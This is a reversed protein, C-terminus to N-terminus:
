QQPPQSQQANAPGANAPQGQPAAPTPPPQLMPILDNLGLEMALTMAQQPNIFKVHYIAHAFLEKQRNQDWTDFEPSKMQDTHEVYHIMHDDFPLPPNVHVGKQINLNELRAKEQDRRKEEQFEGIGNADLMGLVRRKAETPNQEDQLIGSNWLEIVQQTRIAPSNSLASGTYVIIEANEDINDQSFEVVDPIHARGAINILRPITCGQAMIKRAKRYLEEFALEHARIDPGQISDSAEQLQHVQFGSTTGGADGTSSASISSIEDIEMQLLKFMNWVDQAIPPPTIIKPEMVGPPTIIRIVEGAEDNWANAPWKSFVSTIVKPHTQKNLHNVLKSRLDNYERQPGILQEVISTPWFQGALEIDSFEVVPYPNRMSQFGYPLMEQYKLVVSGATVIYRGNPYQNNPRQFLEKVIVFNLDKDSKDALASVLGVNTKASLTAIQKQYQFLDNSAADGKLDDINPVTKYRLKVEELPQARVRMIESQDGIQQMGLDPVLLEYPSGLSFVLDGIVAQTPRGTQPDKVMGQANDDWYLWIFAKGTTLVWDLAQRYIVELLQKRSIYELALQSATANLKDEKDTSAPIIIPTYRNKLFKAKRARYKPLVKNISPRVKHSPISRTELTGLADNWKVNQLGRVIASAIFWQVENPRKMQRWNTFRADMLSVTQKRDFPAPQPSASQGGVAPNLESNSYVPEM